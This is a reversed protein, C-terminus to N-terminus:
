GGVLMPVGVIATPSATATAPAPHINERYGLGAGLNSDRYTAGTGFLNMVGSTSFAFWHEGHPPDITVSGGLAVAASGAAPCAVSGSTQLRTNPRAARGAGTNSFVAVSITGSALAVNFYITGVSGVGRVRGYYCRTATSAIGSVYHNRPDLTYPFPAPIYERLHKLNDRWYTNMKTHDILEGVDFNAPETWVTM